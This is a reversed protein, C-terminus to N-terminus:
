ARWDFLMLWSSSKTVYKTPPIMASPAHEGRELVIYEATLV